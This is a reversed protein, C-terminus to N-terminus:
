SAKRLKRAAFLMLLIKRIRSFATILGRKLKGELVRNVLTDAGEYQFRNVIKIKKKSSNTGYVSYYQLIDLLTSPKLLHTMQNTIDNLGAFKQLEDQQIKM